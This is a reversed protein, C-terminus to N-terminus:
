LIFEVNEHKWFTEMKSSKQGGLIIGFGRNKINQEGRTKEHTKNKNTTTKIFVDIKTQIRLTEHLDRKKMNKQKKM